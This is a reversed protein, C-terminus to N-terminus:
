HLMGVTLHVLTMLNMVSLDQNMSLNNELVLLFHNHIFTQKASVTTYLHCFHMQEYIRTWTLAIIQTWADDLMRRHEVRNGNCM